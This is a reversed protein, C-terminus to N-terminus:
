ASADGDGGGDLMALIEAGLREAEVSVRSPADAGVLKRISENLQRAERIAALKPGDDLLPEGDRGVVLQGHSHALHDRELIELTADTLDELQALLARTLSEVPERAVDAFARRIARSAEGKDCYGLEDAIEQLTHGEDRLKVAAADRRATALTRVYRGKGNRVRDAM